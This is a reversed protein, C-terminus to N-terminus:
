KKMVLYYHYGKDGEVSYFAMKLEGSRVKDNFEKREESKAEMCLRVYKNDSPKARQRVEQEDDIVIEMNQKPSPKAKKVVKEEQIPVEILKDEIVKEPLSVRKKPELKNIPKLEAKKREVSM